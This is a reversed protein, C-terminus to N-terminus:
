KVVYLTVQEGKELPTGHLPSTGAVRGSEIADDDVQVILVRYGKATLLAQANAQELDRLNPLAWGAKKAPAKAVYLQVTSRGTKLVEGPPPVSELVLGPVSKETEREIVSANLGISKLDAVADALMWAQYNKMKPAQTVYLVVSVDSPSKMGADPITRIVRNPTLTVSTVTVIQVGLGSDEIRRRAEGATLGVVPKVPVMVISPAVGKPTAPHPVVTSTVGTSKPTNPTTTEGASKPSLSAPTTVPMEDGAPEGRLTRTVSQGAPSADHVDAAPRHDAATVQRSGLTTALYVASAAMVALCVILILLTSPKLVRVPMEAAADDTGPKIMAIELAHDLKLKISNTEPALRLARQYWMVAQDVHRQEFQVDGMLVCADINDPSSQVLRECVALAEEDKGIIRLTRIQEFLEGTEFNDTM